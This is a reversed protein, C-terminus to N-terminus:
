YLLEPPEQKKARVNFIHLRAHNCLATLLHLYRITLCILSSLFM